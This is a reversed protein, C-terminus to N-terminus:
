RKIEQTMRLPVGDRSVNYAWDCGYFVGVLVLAIVPMANLLRTDRSDKDNLNSPMNRFIRRQIRRKELYQQFAFRASM